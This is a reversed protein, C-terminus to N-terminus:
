CLLSVLNILQETPFSHNTHVCMVVPRDFENPGLKVGTGGMTEAKEMNAQEETVAQLLADPKEPSSVM